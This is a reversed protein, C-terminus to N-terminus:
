QALTECEISIRCRSHFYNFTDEARTCGKNFPTIINGGARNAPGRYADDGLLFWGTSSIPHTPDKLTKSLRTVNFATSDHTSGVTM